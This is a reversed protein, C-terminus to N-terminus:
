VSKSLTFKKLQKKIFLTFKKLKEQKTHLNNLIEPEHTFKFEPKRDRSYVNESTQGIM